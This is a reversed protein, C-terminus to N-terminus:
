RLTSGGGRWSGGGGWGEDGPVAEDAGGAGRFGWSGGEYGDAGSSSRSFNRRERKGKEMRVSVSHSSRRISRWEEYTMFKRGERSPLKIVPDPPREFESPAVSLPHPSIWGRGAFITPEERSVPSAAHLSHTPPTESNSNAQWSQASPWRESANRPATNQTGSGMDQWGSKSLTKAGEGSADSWGRGASKVSPLRQSSRASVKASVDRQSRPASTKSSAVSPPKSPDDFLGGFAKRSDKGSSKASQVSALRAVSAAKSSAPLAGSMLAKAAVKAERARQEDIRVQVAREERLQKAAKAANADRHAKESPNDKAAQTKDEEIKSEKTASPARSAPKSGFPMAPLYMFAEEGNKGTIRVARKSHQSTPSVVTPAKQSKASAPPPPTQAKGEKSSDEKAREKTEVKKPRAIIQPPKVVEQKGDKSTIRIGRLDTKSIFFGRPFVPKESAQAQPQAQKESGAEVSGQIGDEVAAKKQEESAKVLRRIVGGALPQLHGPGDYKTAPFRHVTPCGDDIGSGLVTTEVTWHGSRPGNYGLDEQTVPPGGPGPGSPRASHFHVAEYSDDIASTSDTPDM